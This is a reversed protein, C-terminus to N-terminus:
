SSQLKLVFTVLGFREPVPQLGTGAYNWNKATKTITHKNVIQWYAINEDVNYLVVIVPLSHSVM